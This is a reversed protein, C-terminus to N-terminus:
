ALTATVSNNTKLIPPTPKSLEVTHQFHKEFADKYGQAQNYPVKHKICLARVKPALHPLHAHCVFPFLHHEIQFNLGGSLLTCIASHVGFNQATIVQHKLFNPDSANSTNTTLHNIQSNIMFCCSFLVNSVITWIAAKKLPFVFFPWAVTIYLYIIRGICHLALRLRSLKNYGVVNNFSHKINTKVDGLFNMGLNTAISWLMVFRGFTAQNQHKKKWQISVHERKLQPAHAIDPDKMGINTYAHHGIVHQHYWLWPSSLLPILYPLSANTQWDSSLSFHLCDHWYNAILVWVLPPLVFVTWWEGKTYHPLVTIVGLFLIGLLSWREKTAKAAQYLSCNNQKAILGFYSWLLEKLDKVFADNHFNDWQYHAGDDRPDITSLHKAVSADVRYKSLIKSM